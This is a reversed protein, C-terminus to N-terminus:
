LVFRKVGKLLTLENFNILLGVPAQLLRMYTLVQSEHVPLLKAVAKLEVVVKGAVFLDIRLDEGVVADKYVLPVRLQSVSPINRLDLERIMSKEYIEEYLGPGWYKHVEIAAGIIEHSLQNEKLMEFREEEM